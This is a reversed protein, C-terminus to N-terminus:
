ASGRRMSTKKVQRMVDLRALHFFREVEDPGKAEPELKREQFGSTLPNVGSLSNAVFLCLVFTMDQSNQVKKHSVRVEKGSRPGCGECGQRRSVEFGDQRSDQNGRRHCSKPRSTGKGEAEGTKRTWTFRVRRKEGRPLGFDTLFDKVQKKAIGTKTAMEAIIQTQTMKAM